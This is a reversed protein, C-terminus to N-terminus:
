SDFGKSRAEKSSMDLDVAASNQHDTNDKTDIHKETMGMELTSDDTQHSDAIRHAAKRARRDETLWRRLLQLYRVITFLVITAALIAICYGFVSGSGNAPDLFDYVYIGETAHTLYALSLYLALIFILAPLNIWPHPDSRPLALELFAFVSNLGHESINTFTSLTSEFANAALLSWFVATVVYPYVTVTAYFVSHLWRMWGPWRSLWATGSSGFALSATHMATFGHYFALGWYGLVTFYSFSQEVAETEGIGSRYGIVYFLVTFAYFSIIIRLAFLAWGPLLWSTCLREVYEQSTAHQYSQRTAGLFRNWTRSAM